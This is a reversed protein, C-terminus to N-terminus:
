RAVSRQGKLWNHKKSRESLLDPRAVRGYRRAKPEPLWVVRRDSVQVKYKKAGKESWGRSAIGFEDLLEIYLRAFEKGHGELTKYYRRFGFIQLLMAHATEHLVTHRNRGWRPLVIKQPMMYCFKQGRGDSVRPPRTNFYVHWVHNIFQQCQKLTWDECAPANIFYNEWDYVRVAQRDDRGGKLINRKNVADFTSYDSM